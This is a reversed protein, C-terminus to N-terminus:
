FIKLLVEGGLNKTRAEYDPIIGHSTSLLVMGLGNKVLPIENSPCYIKRGPKSIVSIENIVSSSNHYKLVINFIEHSGNKIKSFNLIYGEQKLINLINNSLKSVPIQVVQKNALYGNKITSVLNSVSHNFSM